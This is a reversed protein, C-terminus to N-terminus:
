IESNKRRMCGVLGLASGLLWFGAPLPIVTITWIGPSSENTASNAPFTGDPFDSCSGTPNDVACYSSRDFDAPNPPQFEENLSGIGVYDGQNFAGQEIRILWTRPSGTEDTRMQIVSHRLSDSDTISNVGDTFLFATPDVRAGGPVSGANEGFNPGLPEAVEFYGSIATVGSPVGEEFATFVNGTYTFRVPLGVASCSLATLTLALVIRVNNKMKKTGYASAFDFFFRSGGRWSIPNTRTM